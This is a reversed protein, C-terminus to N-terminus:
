IMTLDNLVKEARHRWTHKALVEESAQRAIKARLEPRELYYKTVEEMNDFNYSIYHEGEKFLQQFSHPWNKCAEIAALFSGSAMCDLTRPHLIPIGNHLNIKTTQYMQCLESPSSLFGQYYKKYQDWSNWTPEGFLRLSNSFNLVTDVLDKRESHRPLHSYFILLLDNPIANNRDWGLKEVFIDLVINNIVNIDRHSLGGKYRDLFTNVVDLFPFSKGAVTLVSEKFGEQVSHSIYAAMSFDSLIKPNTESPYFYSEDVGFHLVDYFLDKRTKAAFKEFPAVCYNLDSGSGLRFEEVIEDQWWAIHKINKPLNPLVNRSRNIDLIACPKEAECFENLIKPSQDGILIKVEVGLAVFGKAFGVLIGEMKDLFLQCTEKSGSVISNDAVLVVYNIKNNMERGWEV